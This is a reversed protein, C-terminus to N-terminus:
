GKPLDETRAAMLDAEALDQETLGIIVAHDRDYIARIAELLAERKEPTALGPDGEVLTKAIEAKIMGITGPSLDNPENRVYHLLENYLEDQTKRNEADWFDNCEKESAFGWYRYDDDSM